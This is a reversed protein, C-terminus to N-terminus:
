CRELGRGMLPLDAATTPEEATLGRIADWIFARLSRPDM